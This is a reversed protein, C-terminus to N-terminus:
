MNNDCVSNPSHVTSSVCAMSQLRSLHQIVTSCSSYASSHACVISDKLCIESECYSSMDHRRWPSHVRILDSVHSYYMALHILYVVCDIGTVMVTRLSAEQLKSIVDATDARLPNAMIAVGVLRLVINSEFQQQNWSMLESEPVQILVYLLVVCVFYIINALVRSSAM